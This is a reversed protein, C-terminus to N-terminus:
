CRKRWSDIELDADVRTENKFNGKELRRFACVAAMAANDCCYKKQPFIVEVNSTRFHNIFSQRLRANVSVGGGIAVQKVKYKAAALATKKLLASIAAEQFAYAIERKFSTTLKREALKYAVATKLGSFSFEFGNSVFPVPFSFSAGKAVAAEMEIKPGGPYEFGLLKATKDFAEGVADDRTAGLKKYKGYGKALWLESHGGSAILAIIPFKFINIIENKKIECSLFHGELHNVGILPVGYFESITRATVASVILSGNLGPGRCFSVVDPKRIKRLAISILSSIKESHARSAAEPVVGKYKRHIKVQSYVLNLTLKRGDAVAVSTEDCTSEIALIKM